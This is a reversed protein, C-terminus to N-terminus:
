LKDTSPQRLSEPPESSSTQEEQDTSNLYKEALNKSINEHGHKQLADILVKWANQEDTQKKSWWELLNQLCDTTNGAYRANISTIVDQPVDDLAAALNHWHDAIPTLPELLNELPICYNAEAAHSLWVCTTNSM